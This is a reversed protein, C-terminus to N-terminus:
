RPPRACLPKERRSGVLALADALNTTPALASAHLLSVVLLPWFSGAPLYGVAALATAAACVALTLRLAHTRDAIRGAVPASVLRIATGTGFLVGILEPPIGREQIFAPLFPSSAGFAGYLLSYLVLFYALPPRPGPELNGTTVEGGM